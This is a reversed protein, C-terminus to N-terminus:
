GAQAAEYLDVYNDKLYNKVAEIGEASHDDFLMEAGNAFIPWMGSPMYKRDWLNEYFVDPYKDQMTAFLQQGYSTDSEIATSIAGIKGTINNIKTAVEAKTMYDLFVKAAEVNDSDKWIGFTDGEGVGCFQVGEKTSAFSPLFGFNGEENLAKANILWSPDNGLFFAIENNAFREQLDSDAVTQVDEAYFDKSMWDALDTLIGQKFTEWDYTGDLMADTDDFRAGEYTNWTGAYNALTGANNAATAIPTFGADKIKQCAETFDTWDYIAHYLRNM